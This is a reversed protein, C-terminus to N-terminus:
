DHVLRENQESPIPNMHMGPTSETSFLIDGAGAQMRVEIRRDDPEHRLWLASQAVYSTISIELFHDIEFFDDSIEQLHRPFYRFYDVLTAPFEFLRRDPYRAFM